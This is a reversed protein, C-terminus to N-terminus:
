RRRTSGTSRVGTGRRHSGTIWCRKPAGRESVPHRMASRQLAGDRGKAAGGDCISTYAVDRLLRPVPDQRREPRCVPRHRDLRHGRRDPTPRRAQTQLSALAGQGRRRPVPAGGATPVSKSTRWSRGRDPARSLDGQAEDLFAWSARGAGPSRPGGGRSRPVGHAGRRRVGNPRTPSLSSQSCPHDTQQVSVTWEICWRDDASFVDLGGSRRAAVGRQATDGRATSVAHATVAAQGPM